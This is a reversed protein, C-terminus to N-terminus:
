MPPDFYKDKMTSVFAKTNEEMKAQYNSIGNKTLLFYGSNIFFPNDEKYTYGDKLLKLAYIAVYGMGWPNQTMTGYMIGADIANLVDQSDDIGIAVIRHENKVMMTKALVQANVYGTCIIGDVEGIYSAYMDSIAEEALEINDTDALEKYLTFGANEPRALVEKIAMQRKQTNTDNLASCLHVIHGKTLGNQKLKDILAQTGFAVSAGVDTAFCFEADSPETPSGGITIVPIGSEVIRTIEPNSASADSPFMGIGKAGSEIVGKIVQNQESQDWAQPSVIYPEPIGLDNAAAKAGPKYPEFYPHVGGYVIAFQYEAPDILGGSNEEFNVDFYNSSTDELSTQDPLSTDINENAADCAMTLMMVFAILISIASKKM